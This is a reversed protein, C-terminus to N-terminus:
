RRGAAPTAQNTQVLTSGAWRSIVMKAKDWIQKAVPPTGPQYIYKEARTITFGIAERTFASHHYRQRLFHAYILPSLFSNQLLIAGLVVRLLIVVETYAVVRM